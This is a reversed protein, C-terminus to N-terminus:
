LSSPLTLRVGSHRTYFVFGQGPAIPMTALDFEWGPYSWWTEGDSLWYEAQSSYNGNM